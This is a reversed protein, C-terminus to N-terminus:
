VSLQTNGSNYSVSLFSLKCLAVRALIKSLQDSGTLRPAVTMGDTYNKIEGFTTVRLDKSKYWNL